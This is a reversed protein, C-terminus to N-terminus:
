RWGSIRGSRLLVMRAARYTKGTGPPGQIPLISRDLGIAAKSLEDVEESMTGGALRPTERGLLAVAAPFRDEGALLSEALVVLSKRLVRPMSRSDLPWPSRIQRSLQGNARAAEPLRRRDRGPQPRRWRDPGRVGGLDLKFEQPPFRFVYELSQKYPEPAVSDDWRLGAIADREWMLDDVTMSRLDFYRWWEPNSERRHFLLLHSLLRRTAQELTDDDSEVELDATLRDILDQVVAAAVRARGNRSQEPEGLESFDVGFEAEAEPRAVGLLWDRLSATSRCDEENYARIADLLDDAACQLWTEYAVISGGGERVRFDTREFGHHRELKKLSYSEEGVQMGQKVVAFLDVLVGNRLLDDVEAERTAYKVALSRLKSREHPAYHYVHM